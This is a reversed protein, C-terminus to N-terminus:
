RMKFYCIGALTSLGGLTGLLPLSSSSHPLQQKETSEGSAPASSNSDPNATPRSSSRPSIGQGQQANPKTGDNPTARPAFPGQTSPQAYAPGQPQAAGATGGSTQTSNMSTGNANNQQSAAGSVSNGAMGNSDEAQGDNGGSSQSNLANVDANTITRKSIQKGNRVRRALDGLSVSDDAMSGGIPTNEGNPAKIFDFGRNAQGAIQGNANVQSNGNANDNLTGPNNAQVVQGNLATNQPMTVNIADQNTVVTPTIGDGYSITPPSVIYGGNNASGNTQQTTQPPTSSFTGPIPAQAAVVGSLMMLSFTLMRSRM